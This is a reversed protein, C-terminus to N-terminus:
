FRPPGRNQQGYQQQQIYQQQQAYNQQAPNSYSSHVTKSSHNMPSPVKKNFLSKWWPIHSNLLLAVWNVICGISAILIFWNAHFSLSKFSSDSWIGDDGVLDSLNAYMIISFILALIILIISLINVQSIHEFVFGAKPILTLSMLMIISLNIWILTLFLDDVLAYNGFTSEQVEAEDESNENEIDDAIFLMSPPFLYQGDEGNYYEYDIDVPAYAIPVLPSLLFVLLSFTLFTQASSVINRTGIKGSMLMRKLETVVSGALLLCILGVVLSFYPMVHMYMVSNEATSNAMREFLWGATIVFKRLLFIGSLATALGFLTVLPMKVFDPMPISAAVICLIAFIMILVFYTTYSSFINMATETDSDGENRDYVDECCEEWDKAEFDSYKCDDYDDDDNYCDYDDAESYVPVGSAQMIIGALAFTAVISALVIITVPLRSRNRMPQM